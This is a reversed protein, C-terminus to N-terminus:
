FYMLFTVGPIIPKVYEKYYQVSLGDDKGMVFRHEHTHWQM